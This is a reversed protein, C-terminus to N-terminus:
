KQLLLLSNTSESVQLSLPPAGTITNYPSGSTPLVVMALAAILTNPISAHAKLPVFLYYKIWRAEWVDSPSIYSLELLIWSTSLIM